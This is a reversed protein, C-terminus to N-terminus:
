GLRVRQRSDRARITAVSGPRRIVLARLRAHGRKRRLARPSDTILVDRHLRRNPQRGNCTGNRNRTLLDSVVGGSVRARPGGGCRDCRRLRRLARRGRRGVRAFSAFVITAIAFGAICLPRRGWSEVLWMSFLSGVFFGATIAVSGFPSSSPIHLAALVIPAFTYIAFLPVVQLLWMASVFALRGLFPPRLSILRRHRATEESSDRALTAGFHDRLIAAAEDIRGRTALWRISEPATARLALGIAAPVASSALIWRWADERSVLLAGVLYAVTAGLFWIVQMSNVAAGRLRAPMYESILAAAIPYDAGISIGLVVRLAILQWLETVVFQLLSAVVFVALDAIM